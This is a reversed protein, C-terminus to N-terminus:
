SPLHDQPCPGLATPNAQFAPADTKSRLLARIYHPTLPQRDAVVGFPQLADNVASMLAGIAGMVGGEAM